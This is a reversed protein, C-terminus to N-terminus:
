GKLAALRKEWYVKRDPTLMIASMPQDLWSGMSLIRDVIEIAIALSATRVSVMSGDVVVNAGIGELKEGRLLRLIDVRCCDAAYEDVKVLDIIRKHAQSLYVKLYMEFTDKNLNYEVGKSDLTLIDRALIAIVLKHFAENSAQSVEAIIEQRRNSTNSAHTLSSQLRTIAGGLEDLKSIQSDRNRNLGLYYTLIAVFIMLVSMLVIVVPTNM